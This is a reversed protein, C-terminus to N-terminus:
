PEISGQHVLINAFQQWMLHNWQKYDSKVDFSFKSAICEIDSNVDLVHNILNNKQTLRTLFNLRRVAIEMEMPLKGMYFQCSTVIEKNCTSFIKMFALSYANEVSATMRKSWNLAEAGYLLIPVCCSQLFSVLVVPKTNLGVKGIISNLACFYKQKIKQLNIQFSKGGLLIFGFYSLEQKWSLTQNNISIMETSVGHASFYIRLCSNVYINICYIRLCSSKQSNGTMGINDFEEVCVNIMSQMDVLFISLLILDYANMFSNVCVSRIYCGLKCNSLKNLLSDVFISFLVPLLIGGQKVGTCVSFRHSNVGGWTVSSLLKGYWNSLLRIYSIPSNREM